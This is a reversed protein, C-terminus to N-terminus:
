ENEKDDSLWDNLKDKVRSLLSDDEDEEENPACKCACMAPASECAIAAMGYHKREWDSFRRTNPNPIVLEPDSIDDPLSEESSAFADIDADVEDCIEVIEQLESDQQILDATRRLEDALMNGDLYAALKETKLSPHFPKNM